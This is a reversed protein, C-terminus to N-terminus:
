NLTVPTFLQKRGSDAFRKLIPIIQTQLDMGDKKMSIALLSFEEYLSTAFISKTDTSVSVNIGESNVFSRLPVDNYREFPGIIYNSTPCSEIMYNKSVIAAMLHQQILVIYELASSPMRYLVTKFADPTPSEYVDLLARATKSERARVSISNQCLHCEKLEGYKDQLDDNVLELDGRLHMSLWHEEIDFTFQEGYALSYHKEIETIFDAEIDQKLPKGYSRSYMIFWVLNDILDFRSCIVNHNIHQYYRVVDVGLASAHGLRMQEPNEVFTIYEYIMRLGDLIDRFEEAIHYTINKIGRAIAFRLYPSIIAPGIRLDSSATDLGCVPITLDANINEENLAVDNIMKTTDICELISVYLENRISDFRRHSGKTSQPKIINLVHRASHTQDQPMNSQGEIVPSWYRINAAHLMNAIDSSMRTEVVDETEMRISSQVAYKYLFDTKLWDDTLEDISHYYGRYNDLGLLQKTQVFKKRHNIKTIIYLYVFGHLKRNEKSSNYVLRLMERMLWREGAYLAQLSKNSKHIAYDWISGDSTKMPETLSDWETNIASTLDPLSGRLNDESMQVCSNMLPLVERIKKADYIFSHFYLRLWASLIVKWSKNEPHNMNYIWSLEASDFSGNMHSHVDYFCEDDWFSNFDGDDHRVPSVWEYDSLRGSRAYFSAVLLDEGVYLSVDKWRLLKDFRVIPVNAGKVLIAESFYNLVSLVHGYASGSKIKSNHLDMWETLIYDRLEEIAEPAYNTKCNKLRAILPDILYVDFSQSPDYNRVTSLAEDVGVDYFLCKATSRLLDM